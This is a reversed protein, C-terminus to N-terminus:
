DNTAEQKWFGYETRLFNVLDKLKTKDNEDIDGDNNQDIFQVDGVQLYQGKFTLPDGTPTNTLAADTRIIGNTQYGYFLAAQEGEIFIANEQLDKYRFDGNVM